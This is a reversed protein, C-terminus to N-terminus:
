EYVECLIIVDYYKKTMFFKDFFDFFFEFMYLKFEKKCKRRELDTWKSSDRNSM